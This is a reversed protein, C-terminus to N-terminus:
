RASPRRTVVKVTEVVTTGAADNAIKALRDTDYALLHADAGPVHITLKGYRLSVISATPFRDALYARVADEVRDQDSSAAVGLRGLIAALQDAFPQDMSTVTGM